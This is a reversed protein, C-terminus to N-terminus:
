PLPLRRTTDQQHGSRQTIRYFIQPTDARLARGHQFLAADNGEPVQQSIKRKTVLIADAEGTNSLNDGALHVGNQSLDRAATPSRNTEHAAAAGYKMHANAITRAHQVCSKKVTTIERPAQFFSLLEDQVSLGLVIGIPGAAEFHYIGLDFKDATGIPLGGIGGFDPADYGDVLRHASDARSHQAADNVLRQEIEVAVQRIREARRANAFAQAQGRSALGQKVRVKGGFVGAKFQQVAKPAGRVNTQYEFFEKEILEADRQALLRFIAASPDGHLDPFWSNTVRQLADERKFWRGRLFTHETFNGGVEFPGNGICRRSSPSTPLPFVMTASSAAVMTM